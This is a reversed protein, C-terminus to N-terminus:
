RLGRGSERNPLPMPPRSAKRDAVSVRSAGPDPAARDAKSTRRLNAQWSKGWSPKKLKLGGAVGDKPKTTAKTREAVPAPVKPDVKRATATMGPSSDSLFLIQNGPHQNELPPSDIVDPLSPASLAPLRFPEVNDAAADRPKSIPVDDKATGGNPTPSSNSVDKDAAQPTAQTPTTGSPSTDVVGVTKSVEPEPSAPPEGGQSTESASTSTKATVGEAPTEPLPEQAPGEAPLPEPPPTSSPVVAGGCGCLALRAMRRVRASPEVYCGTADTEYALSNLKEMIKPTCCSNVRCSNCPKGANKRLGSAAEFRVVESCDNLASLLAEETDPYCKGCGLSALYRVAKAKQAAKDEEAKAEAAAKVAPSAGEEMNAPDSIALLPPKPELGPFYYGLQNHVCSSAAGIGECLKNLGLFEPLSM